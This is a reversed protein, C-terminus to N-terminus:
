ERVIFDRAGEKTNINQFNVSEELYETQYFPTAKSLDQIVLLKLRSIEKLWKYQHLLKAKFNGQLDVLKAVLLVFMYEHHMFQPDPIHALEFEKLIAQSDRNVFQSPIADTLSYHSTIFEKPEKALKYDINIVVKHGEEMATKVGYLFDAKEEKRAIDELSYLLYDAKKQDLAKLVTELDGDFATSRAIVVVERMKMSDFIAQM